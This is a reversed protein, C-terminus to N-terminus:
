LWRTELVMHQQNSVALTVLMGLLFTIKTCNCIPSPHPSHSLLAPKVLAPLRWVSAGTRGLRQERVRCESESGNRPISENNHGERGDNAVAKVEDLVQM